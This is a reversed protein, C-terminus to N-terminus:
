VRRMVISSFLASRSYSPAPTASQEGANVGLNIQVGKWNDALLTPVSKNFIQKGDVSVLLHGSGASFTSEIVVHVRKADQYALLGPYEWAQGLDWEGGEVRWQGKRLGIAWAASPSTANSPSGGPGWAEVLNLWGSNDNVSDGLKPTLDFELRMRQGAGWNRLSPDASPYVALQSQADRQPSGSPEIAARLQGASLQPRAGDGRATADGGSVNSAAPGAPAPKPTAPSPPAPKPNSTTTPATGPQTPTNSTAGPQPVPIPPTTVSPETTVGPDQGTPQGPAPPTPQSPAAGPNLDAGPEGPAPNPTPGQMLGGFPDTQLGQTTAAQASNDGNLTVVADQGRDPGGGLAKVGGAVLGTVALAVVVWMVPSRRWQAGRAGLGAGPRGSRASSPRPTPGNHQHLRGSRTASRQHARQHSLAQRRYMDFDQRM